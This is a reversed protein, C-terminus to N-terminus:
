ISDYLRWINPLQSAFKQSHPAAYGCDEGVPDVCGTNMRYWRDHRATAAPPAAVTPDVSAPSAAHAAQMGVFVM